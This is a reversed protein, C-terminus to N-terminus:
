SHEGAETLMRLPFRARSQRTVEAAGRIKGSVFIRSRRAMEQSHSDSRGHLQALASSQSECSRPSARPAISSLGPKHRQIGMTRARAIWAGSAGEARRGGGAAPRSSERPEVWEPPHRPAHALVLMCCSFWVGERTLSSLFPLVFCQTLCFFYMLLPAPLPGM